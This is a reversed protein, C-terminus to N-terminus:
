FQLYGDGATGLKKRVLTEGVLFPNIMKVDSQTFSLVLM